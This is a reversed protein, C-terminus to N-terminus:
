AVEVSREGFDDYVQSGSRNLARPGVGFEALQADIKALEHQRFAQIAAMLEADTDTVDTIDRWVQCCTRNM